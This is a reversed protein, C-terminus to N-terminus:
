GCGCCRGRMLAGIALLLFLAAHPEPVPTAPAGLWSRGMNVAWVAYDAADFTLPTPDNAVLTLGATQNDRWLTYDRADVYGDNNFDGALGSVGNNITLRVISPGEGTPDRVISYSVPGVWPLGTPTVVLSTFDGDIAKARIIDFSRQGSIILKSFDVVLAGDLVYPAGLTSPQTSGGFSTLSIPAVIYKSTPRLILQSVVLQDPRLQGENLLPVNVTSSGSITHASGNRLQTGTSPALNSLNSGSLLRLEGAGSFTVPGSLGFNRSTILGDNTIAGFLGAPLTTGTPNISLQGTCAVNGLLALASNFQITATSNLGGRIQGGFVTVNGGLSLTGGASLDIEGQTNDLRGGLVNFIANNQATIKGANVNSGTISSRGLTLSASGRPTSSGQIIIDGRNVFDTEITANPWLLRDVRLTHGSSNILLDVATGSSATAARITSGLIIEGSGTLTVVDVIGISSPSLNILGSNQLIGAFNLFGTRVIWNNSFTADRITSTATSSLVAADFVASGTFHGGLINSSNFRVEGRNDASLIGARNDLTVGNFELYAGNAARMVGYNESGLSRSTLTPRNITIAKLTDAVVAGRNILDISISGAGRITHRTDNTLRDYAGIAAYGSAAASNVRSTMGPIMQLTGAGTLLVSGNIALASTSAPPGSYSILGHNLITGDHIAVTGPDIWTTGSNTLNAAAGNTVQHNAYFAANDDADPFTATGGPTVNVWNAPDAWVTSGAGGTWTFQDGFTFQPALAAGLTCVIALARNSSFM